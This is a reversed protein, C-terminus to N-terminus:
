MNKKQDRWQDAWSAESRGVNMLKGINAKPWLVTVKKKIECLHRIMTYLFPRASLPSTIMLGTHVHICTHHICTDHMPIYTYAQMCAHVHFEGCGESRALNVFLCMCV